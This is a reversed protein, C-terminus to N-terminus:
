LYGTEKVDRYLYFHVSFFASRFKSLFSTKDNKYLRILQMFIGNFGSSSIAWQIFNPSM